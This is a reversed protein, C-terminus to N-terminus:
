VVVGGEVVVVMPDIDVDVVGVIMVVVDFPFVRLGNPDVTGDIRPANKFVRLM